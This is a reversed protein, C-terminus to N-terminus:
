NAVINVLRGAVYVVKKVDKGQTEASVAALATAKVDEEPADAAVTIKAKVKGNIQVALEVEDAKAQEPDFTPWPQVHVSGERGLVTQWLEEAMHPTIPALLKVLTEAVDACVPGCTECAVRKEAPAKRLLVGAANSLEMIAALATNFNNRDFDETM